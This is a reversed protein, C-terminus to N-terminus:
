YYLVYKDSAGVVGSGLDSFTTSSSTTTKRSMLSSSVKIEICDVYETNTEITIRAFRIVQTTYQQITYIAHNGSSAVYVLASDKSLKSKDIQSYFENFIVSNTKTGNGQIEISEGNELKTVRETLERNTMAYPVYTDDSISADRIMPKFTVPTTLNTGNKVYIIIDVKTKYNYTAGRAFSFSVGDGYDYVRQYTNNGDYYGIYVYYTSASGGSPCGSFIYSGDTLYFSDWAITFSTDDVCVGSTIITQDVLTFTIGRDVKSTTELYPFKLVNKGGTNNYLYNVNGKLVKGQKASLPKNTNESTLNDVIDTVYVVGAGSATVTINQTDSVTLNINYTFTSAVSVFKQITDPTSTTCVAVLAVNGDGDEAILGISYLTKDTTFTSNDFSSEVNITTLDAVSASPVATIFTGGFTGETLTAESGVYNTSSFRVETFDISGQNAIVNALVATGENTITLSFNAM